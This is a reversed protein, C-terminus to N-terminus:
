PEHVLLPLSSLHIVHVSCSILREYTYDLVTYAEIPTIDSVSSDIYCQHKVNNIVGFNIPLYIQSDDNFHLVNEIYEDRSSLMMDIEKKNEILIAKKKM